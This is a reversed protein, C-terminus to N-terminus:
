AGSWVGTTKRKKGKEGDRLWEEEKVNTKGSVVDEVRIPERPTAVCEELQHHLTGQEAQCLVCRRKVMELWYRSGEKM